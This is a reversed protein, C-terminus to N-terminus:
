VIRKTPLTLHTYSVAKSVKYEIDIDEFQATDKGICFDRIGAASAAIKDFLYGPKIIIETQTSNDFTLLGTKPESFSIKEFKGMDFKEGIRRGLLHFLCLEISVIIIGMIGGLIGGLAPSIGYRVALRIGVGMLSAASLLIMAMAGLIRLSVKGEEGNRPLASYANRTEGGAPSHEIKGLTEEILGKMGLDTEQTLVERLPGVARSASAGRLGLAIVCAARNNYDNDRDHYNGYAGAGEVARILDEVTINPASAIAGIKAMIRRRQGRITESIAGRHEALLEDLTPLSLIASPVAPPMAVTSRPPVTEPQPVAPQPAVPTATTAATPTVIALNINWLASNAPSGPVVVADRRQEVREVLPGYSNDDDHSYRPNYHKREHKLIEALLNGTVDNPNDLLNVALSHPLWIRGGAHVIANGRKGTLINGQLDQPIIGLAIGQFSIGAATLAASLNAAQANNLEGIVEGEGVAHRLQKNEAIAKDTVYKIKLIVFKEGTWRIEKAEGNEIAAAIKKDVSVDLAGGINKAVDTQGAAKPRLSSPAAAAVQAQGTLFTIELQTAAFAISTALAIIRLCFKRNLGECFDGPKLGLSSHLNDEARSPAEIKLGLTEVPANKTM